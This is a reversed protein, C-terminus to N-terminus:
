RRKEKTNKKHQKAQLAQERKKLKNRHDIQNKVGFLVAIFAVALTSFLATEMEVGTFRTKGQLTSAIEELHPAIM